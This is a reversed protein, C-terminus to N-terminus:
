PCSPGARTPPCDGRAPTPWGPICLRRAHLSPPRRLSQLPHADQLLPWTYLKPGFVPQKPDLSSRSVPEVSDVVEALEDRELLIQGRQSGVQIDTWALPRTITILSKCSPPQQDFSGRGATTWVHPASICQGEPSHAGARYISPEKPYSLSRKIGQVLRPGLAGLLCPAMMRM